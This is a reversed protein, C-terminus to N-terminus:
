RPRPELPRLGWGDDPVAVHPRMGASRIGDAPAGNGRAVDAAAGNRRAGRAFRLLAESLLLAEDPDLDLVSLRPGDQSFAVDVSVRPSPETPADDELFLGIRSGGFAAVPHLRSAHESHEGQRVCWLPFRPCPGPQLPIEADM